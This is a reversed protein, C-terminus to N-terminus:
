QHVIHTTPDAWVRFGAAQAMKCLGHDVESATYRCGARLVDGRILVMGGVTDMALLADGYSDTRKAKGISQGNRTFGWTDHFLGDSGWFMPAVMDVEHALLRALTDRDFLVDSPTFLVYDSWELDVADLATNFVQALIAFREPHVISPYKRKGTDCTLLTVNDHFHAWQGLIQPTADRSDGEVCIVRLQDLPHDLACVCDIFRHITRASTRFPACITVNASM